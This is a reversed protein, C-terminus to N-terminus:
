NNTTQSSDEETAEKEDKKKLKKKLRKNKEKIKKLKQSKSYLKEKTKKSDKLESRKLLSNVYRESTGAIIGFVILAM